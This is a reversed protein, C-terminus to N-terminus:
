RCACTVAMRPSARQAPGLRAVTCRHNVDVEGDVRAREDDKMWGIMGMERFLASSEIEELIVDIGKEFASEQEAKSEARVTM